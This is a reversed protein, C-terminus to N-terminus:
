EDEERPHGYLYHKKNRVFDPPVEDWIRAPYKHNLREAVVLVAALGGAPEDASASSTRPAAVSARAAASEKVTVAIELECGDPLDLPELPTVVGDAYRARITLGPM